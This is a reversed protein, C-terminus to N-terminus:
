IEGHIRLRVMLGEDRANPAWTLTYEGGVLVFRGAGPEYVRLAELPIRWALERTEGGQLLPKRFGILERRPGNGPKEAYIQVVERGAIDGANTLCVRVDIFGDGLEAAFSERRFATYSLGYGFPYRVPVQRSTYYRYGTFVGEHYTVLREDADFDAAPCDEFRYPVTEALRGSPNVEGCLIRAAAEEGGSGALFMELLAACGDAFPMEVPAGNQLLVVLPRGTERLVRLLELAGPELSLSRRDHEERDDDLSSSIVAVTVDCRAALEAAARIAAADVEGHTFGEAYYVTGGPLKERLYHTLTDKRRLNLRASGGGQLKPTEARGGVVAVTQGAKLPLVGENKLLVMSEEALARSLQYNEEVDPPAGAPETADALTRLRRVSGLLIDADLENQEVARAVEEASRDSQWPMELDCGARLAKVRDHVAHWDSIVLGDFGWEERLVGNLMAENECCYEGRFRNYAGMVCLPRGEKVAIEFGRLYIERLTKEEIHTDITERNFEANNALFHKLCAAIHESQVGRVYAAALKGTLLPDESLYEFNRGGLPMRKHNMAPGLLIDVGLAKAERAVAAAAQEVLKENWSAGIASGCPLCTAPYSDHQNFGDPSASTPDEHRVGFPGDCMKLPRIGQAEVTKWYDAGVTLCAMEKLQQEAWPTSNM